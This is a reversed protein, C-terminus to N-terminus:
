RPRRNRDNRKQRPSDEDREPLIRCSHTKVQNGQFEILIEYRRSGERDRVEAMLRWLTPRVTLLQVLRNTLEDGINARNIELELKDDDTPPNALLKKILNIGDPDNGAVAHLVMDDAAELSVQPPGVSRIQDSAGPPILTMADLLFGKVVPDENETRTLLRDQGDELEIWIQTDDPLNAVYSAGPKKSEELLSEPTERRMWREGLAILGLREHHLRYDQVRLDAIRSQMTTRKLSWGIMLTAVFILVMVTLLVFGADRRPRAPASRAPRSPRPATM